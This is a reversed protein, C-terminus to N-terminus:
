EGFHDGLARRYDYSFTRVAKYVANPHQLVETLDLSAQLNVEKVRETYFSSLDKLRDYQQDIYQKLGDLVAREDRVLREVKLSSTFIEASAVSLVLSVALAPLWPPCPPAPP